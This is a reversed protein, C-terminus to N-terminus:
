EEGIEREEPLPYIRYVARAYICALGVNAWVGQGTIKWVVGCFLGLVIPLWFLLTASNKTTRKPFVPDRWIVVIAVVLLIVQAFDPLHAVLAYFLAGVIAEGILWLLFNRHASGM